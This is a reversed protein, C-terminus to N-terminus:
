LEEFTFSPIVKEYSLNDTDADFAEFINFSIASPALNWDTMPAAPFLDDAIMAERGIAAIWTSNDGVKKMVLRCPKSWPDSVAM